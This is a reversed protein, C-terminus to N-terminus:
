TLPWVRGPRAAMLTQDSVKPSASGAGPDQRQAELARRGEAFGGTWLYWTSGIPLLTGPVASTMSHTQQHREPGLLALPPTWPGLLAM